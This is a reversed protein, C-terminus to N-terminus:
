PKGGGQGGQGTGSSGKPPKAAAKSASSRKSELPKRAQKIFRSDGSKGRAALKLEQVLIARAEQPSLGFRISREAELALAIAKAAAEEPALDRLSAAGAEQAIRRALPSPLFAVRGEALAYASEFAEDWSPPAVLPEATAKGASLFLLAVVFIGSAAQRRSARRRQSKGAIRIDIM